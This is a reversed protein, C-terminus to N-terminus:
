SHTTTLELAKIIFGGRGSGIELVKAGKGVYKLAENHEWKDDMYYWSFKELASYFDGDGAVSFPYYFRYGSDMCQCVLIENLNKFYKSVDINLVQQYENILWATSIRKEIVVNESNTIPSLINM